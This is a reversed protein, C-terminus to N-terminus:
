IGQLHREVSALAGQGARLWRCERAGALDCALVTTDSLTRCRWRASRGLMSAHGNYYATDAPALRTREAPGSLRRLPVM